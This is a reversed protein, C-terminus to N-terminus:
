DGVTSWRLLSGRNRASSGLRHILQNWLQDRGHLCGGCIRGRFNSGLDLVRSLDERSLGSTHSLRHSACNGSRHCQVASQIRRLRM